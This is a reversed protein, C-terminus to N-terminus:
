PTTRPKPTGARQGPRDTVPNRTRRALPVAQSKVASISPAPTRPDISM